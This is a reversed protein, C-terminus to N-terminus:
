RPPRAEAQGRAPRCHPEPVGKEVRQPAFGHMDDNGAREALHAELHVGREAAPHHAAGVGRASLDELHALQGCGWGRGRGGRFGGDDHADGDLLRPGRTRRPVHLVHNGHEVGLDRGGCGCLRRRVVPALRGRGATVRRWRGAGRWGRAARGRRGRRRGLRRRAGDLQGGAGPLRGRHAGAARRGGDGGRRHPRLGDEGGLGGGTRFLSAGQPEDSEDGGRQDQDEAAGRPAEPVVVQLALRPEGLLGPALVGVPLEMLRCRGVALQEFGEGLARLAVVVAEPEFQTFDAGGLPLVVDGGGEVADIPEQGLALAVRAQRLVARVDAAGERRHELPDDLRDLVVRAVVLLPGQEVAALRDQLLEVLLVPRPQRRLVAGGEGLLLGLGLLRDALVLLPEGQERPEAGQGGPRPDLRDLLHPAEQFDLLRLRRLELLVRLHLGELLADVGGVAVADAVGLVGHRQGGRGAALVGLRGQEDLGLDIACGRRQRGVADEERQGAADQVGQALTVPLNYPGHAHADVGGVQRHAQGGGVAPGLHGQHQRRVREGQRRDVGAGAVAQPLVAEAGGAEAPRHHDIASGVHRGEVAPDVLDLQGLAVQDAV